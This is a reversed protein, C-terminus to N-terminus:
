TKVPRRLDLIYWKDLPKYVGQPYQCAIPGVRGYRSAQALTRALLDMSHAQGSLFLVMCRPLFERIAIATQVGDPGPMVVDSLLFDPQFERAVQLAEKGDFAARVDFGHLELITCLSSAIVREDDVVLVKYVSEPRPSQSGQLM